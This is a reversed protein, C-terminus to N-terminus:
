AYYHIVTGPTYQSLHTLYIVIDILNINVIFKYNIKLQIILLIINYTNTFTNSINNSIYDVKSVNAVFLTINFHHKFIM